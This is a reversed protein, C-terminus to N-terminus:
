TKKEKEAGEKMGMVLERSEPNAGAAADFSMLKFGDCIQFPLRSARTYDATFVLCNELAMDEATVRVGRRSASMVEEQLLIMVMHLILLKSTRQWKEFDELFFTGVLDGVNANHKKLKKCAQKHGNRWHVLQCETSCYLATRCGTCRKFVADSNCRGKDCGHCAETSRSLKKLDCQSNSDLDVGYAPFHSVDHSSSSAM